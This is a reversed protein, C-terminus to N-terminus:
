LNILVKDTASNTIEMRGKGVKKNGQWEYIAGKGTAAGSYSRQLAPDLKEWPSWAAWNHFDNLHPAIRDPSVDIRASREIRFDSPKTAALALGLAVIAIVTYLVYLLM